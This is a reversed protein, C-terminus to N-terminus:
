CGREFRTKMQEAMLRERSFRCRNLFDASMQDDAVAVDILDMVQDTAAGDRAHEDRGPVYASQRGGLDFSLRLRHLFNAAVSM